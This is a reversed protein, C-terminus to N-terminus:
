EEENNKGPLAALSVDSVPIRHLVYGEQRIKETTQKLLADAIGEKEILRSFRRLTSSGPVQEDLFDLHMFNRMAYSDYIADEVGADSLGFWVKLLYMRLMTELDKPPRGRKGSYYYPRIRETWEDWPIWQDLANLFEEKKTKKKRNSYEFDSFNQQNM